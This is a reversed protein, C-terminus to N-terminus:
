ALQHKLDENNSKHNVNENKLDANLSNLHENEKQFKKKSEVANDREENM